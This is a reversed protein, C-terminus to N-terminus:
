FQEQAEHICNRVGLQGNLRIGFPLPFKLDKAFAITACHKKLARLDHSAWANNAHPNSCPNSYFMIQMFARGLADLWV